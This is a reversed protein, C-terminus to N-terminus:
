GGHGPDDDVARQEAFLAAAQMVREVVVRGVFTQAFVGDNHPALGVAGCPVAFSAARWGGRHRAPPPKRTQALDGFAPEETPFAKLHEKLSMARPM